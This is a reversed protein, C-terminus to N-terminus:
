LQLYRGLIAFIWLLIFLVKPIFKFAQMKFILKGQWFIKLNLIHKIITTLHQISTLGYFSLGREELVVM